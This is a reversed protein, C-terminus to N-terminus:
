RRDGKRSQGGRAPPAAADPAEEAAHGTLSLFVDDLTPRRVALDTVQVGASDLERVVEPLVATGKRVPVTLRRTDPDVGPEGDAFAATAAQAAPLEAPDAVTIELREGGVSDKLENATGRAIAKGRDIVVITDALQDAEELYQTTLLMTTGDRVLEAIIEWMGIRSRPDLGTTPEDLFMVRPRAVLSAAIDLRRRMGGSYTKVPRNGADALDFRALLEDARARAARRGMRFLRGVMELNEWGTLFEDVAAYQGTLGIQERVRVPQQLVDIGFVEARGSDPRLLTSLIRVATTKGAGNPGLVGLVSGEPCGFSLGDLAMTKGFHKVLGEVVIANTV